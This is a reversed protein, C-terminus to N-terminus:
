LDHKEGEATIHKMREICEDCCYKIILRSVTDACSNVGQKWGVKNGHWYGILCAIILILGFLGGYVLNIM